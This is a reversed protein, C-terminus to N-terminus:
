CNLDEHLFSRLAEQWPRLDNLGNLRISMHDLVSYVPRKAPRTYENSSVPIVKIDMEAEEFIANAFEFWSCKGTNSAHYVGYQETVSLEKIFNALDFSYTPSGIQDHVVKIEKRTQGLDLMTKVFNKGHQGYLWSTRVIFYRKNFAETMKEGALKSQGYINIPFTVDFEHYVQKNGDFVYDTSIYVFKANTTEAAVAVNRTGVANVRFAQEPESEAQDVNTYAAAHVIVDPSLNKVIEMTMKSDTIDLEDKSLPFVTCDQEFVRFLDKGLQGNAGTILIKM